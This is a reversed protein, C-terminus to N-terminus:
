ANLKFRNNWRYVGYTMIALNIFYLLFFIIFIWAQSDPVFIPHISNEILVSLLIFGMAILPESVVIAFILVLAVIALLILKIVSDFIEARYGINKSEDSRVWAIFDEKDQESEILDRKMITESIDKHTRQEFHRIQEQYYDELFTKVVPQMVYNTIKESLSPVIRLIGVVFIVLLSIGNWSRTIDKSQFRAYIILALWVLVMFLSLIGLYNSILYLARNIEQFTINFYPLIVKNMLQTIFFAISCAYTINLFYKYKM